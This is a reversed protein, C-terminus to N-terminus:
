ERATEELYPGAADNKGGALGLDLDAVSSGIIAEVDPAEIGAAGLAKRLRQLLAELRRYLPRQPVGMMRAIGSITTSSGFHMRVLFRDEVTMVALEERMVHATTGAIRLQESEDIRAAASADGPLAEEELEELEVARLRPARDPLRAAMSEIERETLPAHSSAVIPAVERLPRRDRLLLKELLVGADGMRRAEASPRWRGFQRSREDCLVRHLVVALYAGLPARGDYHALVACDNEMLALRAVSAFDEADPGALRGKRAVHAIVRDILELNDEFVRRPDM